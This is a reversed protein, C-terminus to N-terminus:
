SYSNMKGSANYGIPNVSQVASDSYVMNSTQMTAFQTTASLSPAQKTTQVVNTTASTAPKM